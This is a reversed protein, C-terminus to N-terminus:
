GSGERRDTLLLVSLSEIQRAGMGIRPSFFPTLVLTTAGSRAVEFRGGDLQKFTANPLLGKFHAWYGKGYCFVYEPRNSAILDAFMRQRGHLVEHAYADWDHFPWFAPWYADSPKPLPLIDALFTEGDLKGFSERQYKRVRKPDEWETDGSLCLVFRIMTSWTPILKDPNFDEWDPDFKKWLEAHGWVEPSQSHLLDEVERYKLRVRLEEVIGEGREEIGIFWFRGAPNGYGRFRYLRQWEEPSLGGGNTAGDPM